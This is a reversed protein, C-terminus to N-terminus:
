RHWSALGAIAEEPSDYRETVGHARLVIESGELTVEIESDIEAAASAVLERDLVRQTDM